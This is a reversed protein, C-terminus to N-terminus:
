ELAPLKDACRPYRDNAHRSFVAAATGIKSVSCIKQVKPLRHPDPRQPLHTAYPQQGHHEGLRGNVVSSITSRGGLLSWNKWPRVDLGKVPVRSAARDPSALSNFVSFRAFSPPLTKIGVLGSIRDAHERPSRRYIVWSSGGPSPDAKGRRQCTIV